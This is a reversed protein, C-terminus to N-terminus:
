IDTLLEGPAGQLLHQRAAALLAQGAGLLAPPHAPILALAAAFSAAASAHVGLAM